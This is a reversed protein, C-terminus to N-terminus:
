GFANLGLTKWFGAKRFTICNKKKSYTMYYERPIWSVCYTRYCLLHINGKLQVPFSWIFRTDTWPLKRLLSRPYCLLLSVRNESIKRKLVTSFPRHVQRLTDWSIENWIIVERKKGMGARWRGAACMNTFSLRPHVQREKVDNVEWWVQCFAVNATWRWHIFALYPHTIVLWVERRHHSTERGAM